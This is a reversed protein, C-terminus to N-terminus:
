SFPSIRAHAYKNAYYKPFTSDQVNWNKLSVQACCQRTIFDTKEKFCVKPQPKAWHHWTCPGSNSGPVGGFFVKSKEDMCWREWGGEEGRVQRREPNTSCGGWHAQILERHPQAEPFMPSATSIFTSIYELSCTNIKVCHFLWRM